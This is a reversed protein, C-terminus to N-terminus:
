IFVTCFCLSFSISRSVHCFLMNYKSNCEESCFQEDTGKYQATAVTKSISLCYVCSRCHEGWKKELENSFLMVCGQSSLFSLREIKGERKKLGSGKKWESKRDRSTRKGESCFYCDKNDVRKIERILRENKCYECKGTINNVKKFEESCALSCVFNIKGQVCVCVCVDCCVNGDAIVTPPKCSIPWCEWSVVTCIM